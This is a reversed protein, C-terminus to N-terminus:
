FGKFIAIPLLYCTCFIVLLRSPTFFLHCHAFLLSDDAFLILNLTFFLLYYSTFLLSYRTNFFFHIFCAVEWFENYCSCLFLEPVLSAYNNGTPIGVTTLFMVGYGAHVRDVFYAIMQYIDSYISDGDLLNTTFYSRNRGVKLHFYQM